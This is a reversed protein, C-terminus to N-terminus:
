NDTIRIQTIPPAEMDPEADTFSITRIRYVVSPMYKAGISAWMNNQQEMTLTYLNVILKGIKQWNKGPEVKSNLQPYSEEDFVPYSQFFSVIYSLLRLDSLYNEGLASFLVFANLNVPPNLFQVKDNVKQFYSQSDTIRDEELNVLTMIIKFSEGQSGVAFTGDTKMLSSPLVAIENRFMSPEKKVIYAKLEGALFELATRLM